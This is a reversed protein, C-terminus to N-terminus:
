ADPQGGTIALIEATIYSSEESAFFVYAPSLVLRM